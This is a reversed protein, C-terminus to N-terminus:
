QVQRCRAAHTRAKLPIANKDCLVCCWCPLFPWPFPCFFIGRPDVFTLRSSTHPYISCCCCLFGYSRLSHFVPFCCCCFPAPTTPPWSTSPPPPTQARDEIERPGELCCYFSFTVICFVFVERECFSALGIIFISHLFNAFFVFVM